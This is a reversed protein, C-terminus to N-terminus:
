IALALFSQLRTFISKTHIHPSYLFCLKAMQSPYTRSRIVDYKLLMCAFCIPAELLDSVTGHFKRSVETGEMSVM